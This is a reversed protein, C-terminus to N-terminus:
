LLNGYCSHDSHTTATLPCDFPANGGRGQMTEEFLMGPAAAVRCVRLAPVAPAGVSLTDALNAVTHHWESPVFLADGPGQRGVAFAVRGTDSAWLGGGEWASAERINRSTTGGRAGVGPATAGCNLAPRSTRPSARPAALLKSRPLSTNQPAPLSTRWPVQDVTACLRSAQHLLPFRWADGAGRENAALEEQHLAPPTGPPARSSSHASPLRRAQM